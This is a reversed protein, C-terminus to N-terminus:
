KEELRRENLGYQEEHEGSGAPEVHVVIDYVGDIRSKIAREVAQSIDHAERVTTRGDIEIDLDIDYLSALRRVRARHPNGAGPVTKVAEFVSRYLAPDAKGDMIEDNAESFVEVASKMVWLGVFLAVISDAIPAELLISLALGVLVSASILVDNRMNKANAMLMSSGTKKGATRQNWALALKGLVSGLTVWLAISGPIERASGERLSHITSLFLQAGAFFIFFALITTATTEARAHGYPHEKDSPKMSIATAALAVISIVVDTSSDIGDGVVALSGALFGVTIKAAALVANGALSVGAARRVIDNRDM